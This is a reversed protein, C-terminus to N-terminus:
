RITSKVAKFQPKSMNNEFIRMANDIIKGTLEYPIKTNWKTKRMAICILYFRM